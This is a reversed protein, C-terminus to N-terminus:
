IVIWYQNGKIILSSLTERVAEGYLKQIAQVDDEHLHLKLNGDDTQFYPDM